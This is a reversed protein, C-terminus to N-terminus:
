LGGVATLTTGYLIANTTATTIDTTSTSGNINNTQNVVIPSQNYNTGLQSSSNSIQNQVYGSPTSSFLNPNSLAISSVGSTGLYANAPSNSLALSASAGGSVGGISAMLAAVQELESELDKLKAMTSDHLATTADDFNTQAATLSDQLTKQAATLSDNLATQAAQQADKLKSSADSLSQDLTAKAQALADQQNQTATAIAANYTSQAQSLTNNFSAQQSALAAQLDTGVQNYQAQLTQDALVGNQNLSDALQNLGTSSVTQVQDFLNQIQTTTGPQANILAQAMQDGLLPGQEVVQQIFQQSYGLGGLQAADAALKNMQNLQTQLSSVLGTATGTGFFSSALDVNTAKAFADTLEAESKQVLALQKDAADQNLKAIADNNAITAKQVTDNYTKLANLSDTQFTQDIKAVTDNYTQEAKEVATNYDNQATLMAKNYTDYAAASAKQYTNQAALVAADKTQELKLSQANYSAITTNMQSYISNVKKSDADMEAVQKKLAAAAEKAATDAASTASKSTNGGPVQGVVGISGGSSTEGGALTTKKGGFIDPLSIKENKLGDLKSALNAVSNGADDFFTTTDKAANNILDLADKAGKGIGPLFSLGELLLKLPGTVIKELAAILGGLGRIFAGVGTLADQMGRVVYDRFTQSHNWAVVFGAALAAIGATILALPSTALDIALALGKMAVTQAETAVVADLEVGGFLYTATTWLTQAATVAAVGLEYTKYLAIAGGIIGVLVEFAASNDKIVNVIPTLADKILNLVVQALDTFAKLLNNLFPLMNQGVSTTFDEVSTTIHKIRGAFTDADSAAQGGIKQHLEDFAKAIAENKPLNTDLVIGFEKFAKSTGTTGRALTLSAQALTEHKVAAYDALTGMIRTSESVSGTAQVLTQFAKQADTTTFNLSNMSKITNNIEVRNAATNQKSNNLATALSDTSAQAQEVNGVLEKFGKQLDNLGTMLLNGAFVGSMITKFNSLAGSATKSADTITQLGAKVNSAGASVGNSDITVVINLGPIDGAM